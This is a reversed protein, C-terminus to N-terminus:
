WIREELEGLLISLISILKPEVIVSIKQAIENLKLCLWFKCKQRKKYECRLSFFQAFRERVSERKLM